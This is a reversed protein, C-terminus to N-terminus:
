NNSTAVVVLIDFSVTAGICANPATLGVAMVVKAANSYTIPVGPSPPAAAFVPSGQDQVGGTFNATSCSAHGQDVNLVIVRSGNPAQQTSSVLILNFDGTNTFDLTGLTNAIGDNPGLQAAASQTYVANFSLDGVSVTNGTITQTQNWALAGGLIVAGIVSFAMAGAFIKRM